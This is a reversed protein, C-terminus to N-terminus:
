GSVHVMCKYHSFLLIRVSLRRSRKEFSNIRKLGFALLVGLLNYLVYDFDAHFDAHQLSRVLETGRLTRDKDGDLAVEAGDGHRQDTEMLDVVGVVPAENCLVEVVQLDLQFTKDFRMQRVFRQPPDILDKVEESLM